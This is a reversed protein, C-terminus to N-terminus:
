KGKPAIVGSWESMVDAVTEMRPAPRCAMGVGLTVGDASPLAKFYSPPLADHRGDFWEDPLFLTEGVRLEKFTKYGNPLEIAQKQPNSNVLAIACKPCGAMDDRSAIGAPSDGPQVVYTRM